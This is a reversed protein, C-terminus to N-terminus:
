HSMNQTAEKWQMSNRGNLAESINKPEEIDHRDTSAVNFIDWWNGTIADLRNPLVRNRQPRENNALPVSNERNRERANEYPYEDYPYEDNAADVDHDFSMSEANVLEEDTLLMQDGNRCDPLEHDCNTEVVTVDKSEILKETELDCLHYGKSNNPYGIFVCANSKKDLKRKKQDPM